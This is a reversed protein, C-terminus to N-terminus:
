HDDEAAQVAAGEQGGLLGATLPPVSDASGLEHACAGLHTHLPGREDHQHVLHGGGACGRGAHRQQMGWWEGRVTPQNPNLTM